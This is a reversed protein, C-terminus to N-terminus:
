KFINSDDIPRNNRIKRLQKEKEERERALRRKRSEEEQKKKEEEEFGDILSCVYDVWKGERTINELKRHIEDRVYVYEGLPILYFKYTYSCGYVYEGQSESFSKWPKKEYEVRIFDDTYGSPVYKFLNTIRHHMNDRRQRIEESKNYVEVLHNYWLHCDYAGDEDYVKGHNKLRIGSSGPMHGMGIGTGSYSYITLIEDEYKRDCYGDRVYEDSDPKYDVEALPGKLIESMMLNINPYNTTDSKVRKPKKPSIFMDFLEDLFM